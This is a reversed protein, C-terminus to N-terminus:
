DRRSFDSLVIVAHSKEVDDKNEAQGRFEQNRTSTSDTSNNSLLQSLGVIWPNLEFSRELCQREKLRDNLKKYCLALGQHARFNKPNAVILDTYLKIAADIDKNQIKMFGLRFKAEHYSPDIAIAAQFRHVASDVLGRNYLGGADRMLFSIKPCGNILSLYFIAREFYNSIDKSPSNPLLDELLRHMSPKSSDADLINEDIFHSRLIGQIELLYKEADDTDKNSYEPDQCFRLEKKALYRFLKSDYHDFYLEIYPNDIPRLDREDVCHSFVEEGDYLPAFHGEPLVSYFLQDDKNKLMIFELRSIPAGITDLENSLRVNKFGSRRRTPRYEWGIVIARYGTSKNKVIDGVKFKPIVSIPEAFLENTKEELLHEDENKRVRQVQLALLKEIREMGLRGFRLQLMQDSYEFIDILVEIYDAVEAYLTNTESVLRDIYIGYMNKMLKPSCNNFKSSSIDNISRLRKLEGLVRIPQQKKLISQMIDLLEISKSDNFINLLKTGIVSLKEHLAILKETRRIYERSHADFEVPKFDFPYMFQVEPSPIFKKIDVDFVPFYTTIRENDIRLLKEDTIAEYEVSDAEQGEVFTRQPSSMASADISTEDHLLNLTQKIKGENNKEVNWGIVISRAGTEIHRVVDGVRFIDKEPSERMMQQLVSESSVKKERFNSCRQLETVYGNLLKLAEMADGEPDKPKPLLVKSRFAEVIAHRVGFSNRIQQVHNPIHALVRPPLTSTKIVFPVKSALDSRTWRLLSKMFSRNLKSLSNM